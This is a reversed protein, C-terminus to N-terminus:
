TGRDDAAYQQPASGPTACPENFVSPTPAADTVGEPCRDLRSRRACEHEDAARVLEGLNRRLEVGRVQDGRDLASM